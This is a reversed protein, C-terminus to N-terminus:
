AADKQDPAAANAARVAAIAKNIFIRSDCNLWADAAAKAQAHTPSVPVIKYGLQVQKALADAVAQRLQDATYLRKFGQAERTEPKVIGNEDRFCSDYVYGNEAISPRMWGVPDPLEVGAVLSDRYAEQMAWMTLNIAASTVAEVQGHLNTSNSAFFWGAAARAIEIKKNRPLTIQTTM